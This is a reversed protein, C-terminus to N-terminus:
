SNDMDTTSKEILL